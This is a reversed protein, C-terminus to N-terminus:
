IGLMFLSRAGRRVLLCEPYTPFANMDDASDVWGAAGINGVGGLHLVLWTTQEVMKVEVSWFVTWGSMFWLM